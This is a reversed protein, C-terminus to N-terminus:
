PKEFFRWDLRHEGDNTVVLEGGSAQHFFRHVGPYIGELVLLSRGDIEMTEVPELLLNDRLYRGPPLEKMGTEGERARLYSSRFSGELLKRLVREFDAQWADEGCEATLAEELRAQNLQFYAYGRRQLEFFLRGQFGRRWSGLLTSKGALDRPYLAAGPRLSREGYSTQLYPTVILATNPLRPLEVTVTAGPPCLLRRHVGSADIWTVAYRISAAEPEWSAPLRPTRLSLARESSFLGCGSLLSALFLLLPSLLSLRGPSHFLLNLM